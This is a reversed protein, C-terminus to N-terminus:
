HTTSSLNISGIRISAQIRIEQTSNGDKALITFVAQALFGSPLGLLDRISEGAERGKTQIVLLALIPDGSSAVITSSIISPDGPDTIPAISYNAVPYFGLSAKPHIAKLKELASNYSGAAPGVPISFIWHNNNKNFLANGMVETNQGKFPELQLPVYYYLESEKESEYVNFSEESIVPNKKLM